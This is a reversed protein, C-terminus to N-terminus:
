RSNLGNENLRAERRKKNKREVNIYERLAATLIESEKKNFQVDM